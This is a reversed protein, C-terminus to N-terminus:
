ELGFCQGRQRLGHRNPLEAPPHLHAPGPGSAHEQLHVERPRRLSNLHREPPTEAGFSPTAPWLTAPISSRAWSCRPSWPTRRSSAGTARISWIPASASCITPTGSPSSPKMLCRTGFPVQVEMATRSFGRIPSCRSMCFMTPFSFWAM